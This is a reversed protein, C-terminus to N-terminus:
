DNSAVHEIGTGFFHQALNKVAARDELFKKAAPIAATRTDRDRLETHANCLLEIDEERISIHLNTSRHEDHKLGVHFTRQAVKDDANPGQVRPFHRIPEPLTELESLDARYVVNNGLAFLPTEPLADLVSAIKAGCDAAPDETEVAIQYPAINWTVRDKSLRFRFGPQALNTEMPVDTGKEILGHKALWQPHLIYINFTGVVVCSAKQFQFAVRNKGQPRSQGLVGCGRDVQAGYGSALCAKGSFYAPFLRPLLM